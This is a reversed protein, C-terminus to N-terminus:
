ARRAALRDLAEQLRAVDQTYAIRIFRGPDAVGFDRGPTLAVHSDRLIARALAFSDDGLATTDCYVYFAGEPRAPVAFGVGPLGALLVDRRRELEGRREELIATTEPLFAALAAHQAPTPPCIYLNQALKEMDRVMGPPVVAWGIRWGTMQFYKSFSSVVVADDAVSLVTRPERGYVLLGYIEDAILTAGRDRCLQAMPAWEAPAILTGTPNSPSAAVVARVDPSWATQLLDATLQFGSAADTPVLRADAGLLRAFHRNCPYGPDGMLVTRGVDAVAALVMLLAASSGATVVVREPAVHVGFREAYHAAIAERLAPLGLASTYGMPTNELARRAAAVIPAPTPFDPEGVELHIVDHGAAELRLAEDLVEMVEFAAIGSM